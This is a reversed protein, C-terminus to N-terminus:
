HNDTRNKEAFFRETQKATLTLLNTTATFRFYGGCGPSRYGVVSSRYGNKIQIPTQPM